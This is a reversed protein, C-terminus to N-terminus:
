RNHIFQYWWCILSAFLIRVSSMFWKYLDFCSHTHYRKQLKILWLWWHWVQPSEKKFVLNINICYGTKMSLNLSGKIFLDKGFKLFFFPLVSVPRYNTFITEDDSKFIPEVNAIKHEAPFVGRQFSRNSIQTLPNKISQKIFKMISPRLDDWGCSREKLMEIITEIENETVSSMVFLVKDSTMYELPNNNTPPIANALTSGVNVFFRNFKNSIEHGDSVVKGNTQFQTCVPTYKSKNIVMTLIQWSKKLNSKHENPLDLYHKREATRM